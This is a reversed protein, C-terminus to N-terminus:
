FSLFVNAQGMAVFPSFAISRIIASYRTPQYNHRQHALAHHSKRTSPASRKGLSPPTRIAEVCVAVNSGTMKPQAKERGKVKMAFSSNNRKGGM